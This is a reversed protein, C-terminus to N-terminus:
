GLAKITNDIALKLQPHATGCEKRIWAELKAGDKPLCETIKELMAPHNTKCERRIWRALKEAPTMKQANEEANPM